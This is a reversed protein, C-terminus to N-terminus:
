SLNSMAPNWITAPAERSGQRRERERERSREMEATERGQGRGLTMRDGKSDGLTESIDGRGEKLCSVFYFM